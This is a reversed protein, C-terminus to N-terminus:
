RSTQGSGGPDNASVQGLVSSRPSPGKQQKIAPVDQPMPLWIFRKDGQNTRYKYFWGKTAIHTAKGRDILIDRSSLLKAKDCFQGMSEHDQYVFTEGLWYVGYLNETPKLWAKNSKVEVVQYYTDKTQVSSSLRIKSPDIYM